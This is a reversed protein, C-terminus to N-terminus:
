LVVISETSTYKWESWNRSTVEAPLVAASVSKMKPLRIKVLWENMQPLQCIPISNTYQIGNQLEVENKPM